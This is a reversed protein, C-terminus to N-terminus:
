LLNGSQFLKLEHMDESSPIRFNFKNYQGTTGIMYQYKSYVVTALIDSGNYIDEVRFFNNKPSVLIQGIAIM